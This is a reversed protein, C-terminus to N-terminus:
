LNTARYRRDAWARVEDADWVPTRGVHRVPPPTPNKIGPRKVYSHWTRLQVNLFDACEQATWEAITM